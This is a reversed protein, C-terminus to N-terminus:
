ATYVLFWFIFSNFFMSTEVGAAEKVVEEVPRAEKEARHSKKFLMMPSLFLGPIRSTIGPIAPGLADFICVAFFAIALKSRTLLTEKLFRLGKHWLQLIGTRCSLFSGTRPEKNFENTLQTNRWFLNEIPKIDPM